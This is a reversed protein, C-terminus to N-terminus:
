KARKEAEAKIEGVTKKAESVAVGKALIALKSKPEVYNVYQLLSGGDFPEVTMSGDSVNASTSDLLTWKVISADGSTSYTNRVTNTNEGVIPLKSVYCVDVVNPSEKKVVTASVMSPQYSPAAEYDHFLATLRAVPAEVFTTVTVKPWAGGEVNSESVLMEGAELQSKQDATLESVVSAVASHFSLCAAAALALPLLNKM